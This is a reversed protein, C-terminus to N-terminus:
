YKGLYEDDHDHSRTEFSGQAGEESSQKDTPLTNGSNTNYRPLHTNVKSTRLFFNNKKQVCHGFDEMRKNVSPKSTLISFKEQLCLECVKEEPTFPKVRVVIEWKTNFDTNKKKLKWVHDSLSLTTATRKHELKFSSKHLNFSTKFENETLGIYTEQNDIVMTKYVVCKNLCRGDSNLLETPYYLAEEGTLTSNISM